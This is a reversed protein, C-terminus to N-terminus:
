RMRVDTNPERKERRPATLWEKADHKFLFFIAALQLATILLYLVLTVGALMAITGPAMLLGLGTFVVLIWKAINSAKRAILWWFLLSIALVFVGIFLAFGTGFEATAPDAALMAQTDGLGVIMNIIGIVISSLYLKEFM